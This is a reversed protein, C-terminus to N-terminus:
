HARTASPEPEVHQRRAKAIRWVKMWRQLLERRKGDRYEEITREIRAFREGTDTEDVPM